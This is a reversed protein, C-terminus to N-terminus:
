MNVYKAPNSSRGYFSNVSKGIYDSDNIEYGEFEIRCGYQPNDTYKWRVPVFVAVVRGWEIALVHTAKRAKTIDVKWYKRTMEYINERVEKGIKLCLIRDEPRPVLIEEEYM